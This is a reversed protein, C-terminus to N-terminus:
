FSLSAGLAFRGVRQPALSVRLRNLPVEEWRDTRILLGVLAGLGAGTGGLIAIAKAYDGADCQEEANCISPSTVLAVTWGVGVLFGIGAGLLARGKRGRHVDLRTVHERPIALRDANLPDIVIQEPTLAAVTGVFWQPESTLPLTSIRVRMGPAIPPREQASLAAHPIFLSAALVASFVRM